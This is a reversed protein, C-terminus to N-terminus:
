VRAILEFLSRNRHHRSMCHHWGITSRPVVIPCFYTDKQMNKDNTYNCTCMSGRRTGHVDVHMHKVINGNAGDCADCAGARNGFQMPMDHFTLLMRM